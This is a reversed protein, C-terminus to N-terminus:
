NQALRFVLSVVQVHAERIPFYVLSVDVVDVSPARGGELVYGVYYSLGTVCGVSPHPEAVRELCESRCSPERHIHRQTKFFGFTQFPNLNRNSSSTKFHYFAKFMSYILLCCARTIKKFIKLYRCSSIKGSSVERKRLFELFLPPEWTRAASHACASSSRGWAANSM